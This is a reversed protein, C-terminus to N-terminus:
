RLYVVLVFMVIVTSSYLVM